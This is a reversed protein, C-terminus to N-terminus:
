NYINGYQWIKKLFEPKNLKTVSLQIKLFCVFIKVKEIQQFVNIRLIKNIKGIYIEIKFSMQFKNTRVYLMSKTNRVEQCFDSIRLCQM